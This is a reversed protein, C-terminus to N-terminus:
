KPKKGKLKRKKVKHNYKIFKVTIEECKEYLAKLHPKQKIRAALMTLDRKEMETLNRLSDNGALLSFTMKEQEKEEEYLAQILLDKIEYSHSELQLRMQRDLSEHLFEAFKDHCKSIVKNLTESKETMGKFEYTFDNLSQNTGCSIVEDQTIGSPIVSFEHIFLERYFRITNQENLLMKFKM